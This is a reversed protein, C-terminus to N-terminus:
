NTYNKRKKCHRKQSDLEQKLEPNGTKIEYLGTEIFCNPLLTKLKLYEEECINDEGIKIWQLNTMQKIEDPYTTLTNVNYYICFSSFKSNRNARIKYSIKKFFTLSDINEKRCTNELDLYKLNKFMLLEMPFNILKQNGLFLYVVSDHNANLADTLSKYQKIKSKEIEGKIKLNIGNKKNTYNIFATDKGNSLDQSHCITSIICNILILAFYKM